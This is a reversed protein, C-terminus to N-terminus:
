CGLGAAPTSLRAVALFPLRGLAFVHDACPLLAQLRRRVGSKIAQYQLYQKCVM